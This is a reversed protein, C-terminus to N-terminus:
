HLVRVLIIIAIFYYIILGTVDVLTSILPASVVAPDIGLKTAVLPVMSGVINAWVCIGMVTLGIVLGFRSPMGLGIWAFLFGLAGLLM